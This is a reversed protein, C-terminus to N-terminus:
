HFYNSLKSLIFVIIGQILVQKISQMNIHQINFLIDVIDFLLIAFALLYIVYLITSIRMASKRQNFKFSSM